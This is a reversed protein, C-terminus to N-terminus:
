GGPLRDYLIIKDFKLMGQFGSPLDIRLQKIGQSLEWSPAASVPVLFRAGGSNFVFSNQEDFARVLDNTWRIQWVGASLKRDIEIFLEDGKAGGPVGIVIYPDQGTIQWSGDEAARVGNVSLIQGNALLDV